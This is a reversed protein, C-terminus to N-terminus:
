GKSKDLPRKLYNPNSLGLKEEATQRLHNLLAQRDEGIAGERLKVALARNLQDLDTENTGLLSQLRATESDNLTAGDELTREVIAIANVAVRLHFAAQGKLEPGVHNQLHDRVAELLEKPSPRDNPM